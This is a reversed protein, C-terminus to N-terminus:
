TPSDKSKTAVRDTLRAAIAKGKRLIIRYGIVFMLFFAIIKCLYGTGLWRDGYVGLFAFVTATVLVTILLDWAIGLAEWITPDRHSPKVEDNM